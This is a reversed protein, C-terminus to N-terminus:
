GATTENLPIVLRAVTGGECLLKMTGALQSHVLTDVIQMGLGGDRDLDFGPPLGVGDDRVDVRLHADNREICVSVSGKRGDRFAHEVANQLLENLVVALPTAIEGSLEGPDGDVIFTLDHEPRTLGEEVMSVLARLVTRFPVVDTTDRSLTEHVLAISRIRRESEELAARAEASELTRAQLSLLSATTQLSNKVRHHIERIMVDKSLLLREQRRLETVDRLLLLAGIPLRQEVLPIVGLIVVIDGKEIEETIPAVLAFATRVASDDIGLEGLTAGEIPVLGLRHFASVANPSAYTIKGAGDLRLIGDGVRPGQELEPGAPFPFAGSAVMHVIADATELYTRELPSPRRGTSPLADRTLIGVVTGGSPVPVAEVNVRFGEALTAEGRQVHGTRWVRAVLPRESEDIVRGVQDEPYLTQGTTARVQALVVFRGAERSTPTFLLLDSFCLDAIVGWSAVLRKLHEIADASLRTHERAIDTLSGAAVAM